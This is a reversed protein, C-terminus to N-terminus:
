SLGKTHGFLALSVAQRLAEVTVPKELFAEGAWLQTREKFLQDSYGTLYLVPLDPDERRLTHALADGLMEPMMVDTLLLDVHGCAHATAVASQGSFALATEYGAQRLVRDVYEVVPRDDDVILVRYRRPENMRGGDQAALQTVCTM